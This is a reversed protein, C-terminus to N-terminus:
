ITGADRHLCFIFYCVVLVFVVYNLSVVIHKNNNQSERSAFNLFLDMCVRIATDTNGIKLHHWVVSLCIIDSTRYGPCLRSIQRYLLWFSTTEM